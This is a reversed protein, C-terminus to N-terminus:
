FISFNFALKCKVSTASFGLFWCVTNTSELLSPKNIHRHEVRHIISIRVTVSHSVQGASHVSSCNQFRHM